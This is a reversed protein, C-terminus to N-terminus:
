ALIGNGESKGWKAPVTGTGPIKVLDEGFNYAQPEPFVPTGYCKISDVHWYV